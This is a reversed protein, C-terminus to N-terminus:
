VDHIKSSSFNASPWSVAFDAFNVDRSFKYTYPLNNKKPYIVLEATHARHITLLITTFKLNKTKDLINNRADSYSNWYINMVHIVGAM